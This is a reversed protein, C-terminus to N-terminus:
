HHLRETTTKCTSFISICPTVSSCLMADYIQFRSPQQLELNHHSKSSKPKQKADIYDVYELLKIQRFRKTSNKLLCTLINGM